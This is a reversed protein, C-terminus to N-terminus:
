PFLRTRDTIIPNPDKPLHTQSPPHRPIRIFTKAPLIRFKIGQIHHNHLPPPPLPIPNKPLIPLITFPLPLIPALIPQISKAPPFLNPRNPRDDIGLFRLNKKETEALTKTLKNKEVQFQLQLTVNKQQMDDCTAKMQRRADDASVVEEELERVKSNLAGAKVRWEATDEKLKSVQQGHKEEMLLVAKKIGTELM